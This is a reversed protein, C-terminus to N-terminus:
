REKASEVTAKRVIEEKITISLNKVKDIIRPLDQISDLDTDSITVTNDNLKIAKEVVEDIAQRKRNIIANLIWEIDDYAVYSFAKRGEVGLVENLVEELKILTEPKLKDKLPTNNM